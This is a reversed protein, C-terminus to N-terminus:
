TYSLLAILNLFSIYKPIEKIINFEGSIQSPEQNRREMVKIIIINIHSIDISIHGFVGLFTGM